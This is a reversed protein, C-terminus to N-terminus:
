FRYTDGLNLEIFNNNWDEKFIAISKEGTCHSPAVYSFGLEKLKASIQEVSDENAHMLHFGGTVLEPKKGPFFACVSECIEVIGPHACGTIVIFSNEKEVIIAQERIKNAPNVLVPSLWINEAIEQFKDNVTFELNPFDSKLNKDYDNPLYVQTGANLQKLVSRLGGTHDYHEHSIAVRDIDAPNFVLKELNKQLIDSKTGADFLTVEGNLEIWASFGWDTKLENNESAINNYVITFLGNNQAYVSNNFQVFVYIIICFIIRKTKM